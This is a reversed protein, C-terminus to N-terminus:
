GNLGGESNVRDLYLQAGQVMERGSINDQSTPGVVALYIADRNHLFIGLSLVLILSLIFAIVGSSVRRSRFIMTQSHKKSAIKM